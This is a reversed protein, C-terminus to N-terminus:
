LSIKMWKKIIKNSVIVSRVSLNQLARNHGCQSQVTLTWPLTLMLQEKRRERIFIVLLGPIILSMMHFIIAKDLRHHITQWYRVAIRM